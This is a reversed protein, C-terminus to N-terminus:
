NGGYAYRRKAPMIFPLLQTLNHKIILALAVLYCGHKRLLSPALQAREALWAELRAQDKVLVPSLGEMNRSLTFATEKLEELVPWDRPSQKILIDWSLGLEQLAARLLDVEGRRAKVKDPANDETMREDLSGQGKFVGKFQEFISM